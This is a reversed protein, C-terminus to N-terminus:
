FTKPLESPFLILTLAQAPFHCRLEPEPESFVAPAGVPRRDRHAARVWLEM